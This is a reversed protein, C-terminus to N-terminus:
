LADGFYIRPEAKWAIVLEDHEHFGFGVCYNLFYLTRGRRRGAPDFALTCLWWGSYPPKFKPYKSWRTLNM